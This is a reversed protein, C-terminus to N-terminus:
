KGKYGLLALREVAAEEEDWPIPGSNYIITSEHGKGLLLVTDGTAALTFAKDMAHSRDPVLFLERGLKKNVVGRVIGDIIDESKEGRPDEDTLVIIDCYRSALEGLMPRKAEDREGASGFLAIIRGRATERISPLIKKFSGPTHAYDVIVSFPQGSDIKKMRGKVGTLSPIHPIIEGLSKDAIHKVTLITALTNEVNFNGPINLRVENEETGSHIILNSGEQDPDIESCYLDAAKNDRSYTYAFGSSAEKMYKWNPDDMNIIGFGPDPDTHIRRFLRSKDLRYNEFTLHFELHEHTINTFVGAHFRINDLRGTKPSLGHSTTEIVAFECGAFHMEALLEHIEPAEPTSQRYPNKRIEGGAQYTATSLFGSKKGMLTLLQHILFVTSTKGDTGTVGIVKMKEAPYDYFSASIPALSLRPDETRIYTIGDRKKEIPASHLVAVAGKDLAAEIFNHGDTHVGSTAAFLSGGTVRRSDYYIGNVELDRGTQEIININTTIASLRKKM